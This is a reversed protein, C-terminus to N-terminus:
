RGQSKPTKPLYTPPIPLFGAEQQWLISFVKWGAPTKILQISNIGRAFPSEDKAAHFSAYSSFAHAVNGYIHLKRHLEREFFGTEELYPGAGTIYDDVTMRRSRARDPATHTIGTFICDKVCIQRFRNWDRKQGKPGSIVDYFAKIARAVADEDSSITVRSTPVEQPEDFAPAAFGFLALPVLLWTIHHLRM